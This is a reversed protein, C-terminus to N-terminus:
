VGQYITDGFVLEEEGYLLKNMRNMDHENAATTVLTHTLTSKIGVGIHAKM